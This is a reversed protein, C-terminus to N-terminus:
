VAVRASSLEAALHEAAREAIAAVTLSSPVGLSTPIVSADVIRLGAHHGGEPRFVRGWGDVVGDDVTRGMRCGGLPHVGFSRMGPLSSVDPIRVGAVREGWAVLRQAAFRMIPDDQYDPWELAARGRADWVAHGRGSDQADLKYMYSRALAGRAGPQLLDRARRAIHAWAGDGGPGRTRRGIVDALLSMTAASLRMAVAPIRGSMITLTRKMGAPDTFTLRASTTIPAGHHGGLAHPTDYLFALGDGNMSMAEGFWRSLPLEARARALLDLTGFTGAAIVLARTTLTDVRGTAGGARVLVQWAQGVRRFSLVEREPVVEAGADIARALYTRDLSRKAGVNCGPVCKGCSTCRAWDITNDLDVRKGPEMRDIFDKDGLADAIPAHSAGLEARARRYYPAMDAASLPWRSFTHDDPAATIGYNVLSAGGLGSVYANGTGRGLRMGWLGLPNRDGHYARAMDALSTPFEGPRWARGRELLLVRAVPALRAAMVSGGYGSGVIIVDYM